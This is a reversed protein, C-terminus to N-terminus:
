LLFFFGLISHFLVSVSLAVPGCLPPLSLNPLTNLQHSMSSTCLFVLLGPCAVHGRGLGPGRGAGATGGPCPGAGGGSVRVLLNLCSLVGLLPESTPPSIFLFFVVVSLFCQKTQKKNYSNGLNRGFNLSAM